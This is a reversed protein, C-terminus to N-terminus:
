DLPYDTKKNKAPTSNWNIWDEPYIDKSGKSLRVDLIYEDFNKCLVAFIKGKRLFDGKKVIIDKLPYYSTYYDGYRIIVLKEKTVTDIEIIHEVRGENISIVNYSSDTVISLVFDIIPLCGKRKEADSIIRNYKKLPV